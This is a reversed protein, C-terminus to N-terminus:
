VWIPYLAPNETVAQRQTFSSEKGGFYVYKFAVRGVGGCVCVCVSIYRGACLILLTAM